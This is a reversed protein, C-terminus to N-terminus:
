RWAPRDMRRAVHAAIAAPPLVAQALGANAVAGPMGWVVSSQEDQAILEGGAEIVRAAGIAGDRGMGSLVVAVGSGGFLAAVADFMPDVSPMCGSAAAGRDLRIRVADAIRVLSIHADGPAVLIEGAVLRAGDRAIAAPRGAMGALQTAFYPMFMEPLHQTVLIPATFSAPLAAFFAALAHLGGTSAGIALCDIPDRRARPTDGIARSRSTTVQGERAIRILREALVDGFRGGFSAAGPKVLTDAAGLTLARVSEEAGEECASSVILVRAGRAKAILSPLATLGDTGPMALDLLIVDVEIRGLLDLADDAHAAEAVIEFEPRPALMRSFVARAVVSDDVILLRIPAMGRGHPTHRALAASGNM